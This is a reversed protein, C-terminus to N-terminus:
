NKHSEDGAPTGAPPPPTGESPTFSTCVRMARSESQRNIADLANADMSQSYELAADSESTMTMALATNTGVGGANEASAPAAAGGGGGGGFAFEGTPAGSPTSM